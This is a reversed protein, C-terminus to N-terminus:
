LYDAAVKNKTTKHAQPASKQEHKELIFSGIKFPVLFCATGADYLGEYLM